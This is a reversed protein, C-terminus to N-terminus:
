VRARALGRSHDVSPVCRPGVLDLTSAMTIFSQFMRLIVQHTEEELTCSIVYSFAQLIPNWASSLMSTCELIVDKQPHTAM